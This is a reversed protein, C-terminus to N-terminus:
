NPKTAHLKNTCNNKIDARHLKLNAAGPLLDILMKRILALLDMMVHECRTKEFAYCNTWMALICVGCLGVSALERKLRITPTSRALKKSPRASSLQMEDPLLLSFLCRARSRHQIASDVFIRFGSETRPPLIQQRRQGSTTGRRRAEAAQGVRARSHQAYSRM